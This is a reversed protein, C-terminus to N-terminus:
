KLVTVLGQGLLVLKLLALLSRLIRRGLGVVRAIDLRFSARWVECSFRALLLLWM